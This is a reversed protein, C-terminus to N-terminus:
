HAISHGHTQVYAQVVLEHLLQIPAHTSTPPAGEDTLCDATREFVLAPPVVNLRAQTRERSSLVFPVAIRGAPHGRLTRAVRGADTSLQRQQEVRSDQNVRQPTPGSGLAQAVKAAGLVHRPYASHVDLLDHAAYVLLLLLEDLAEKAPELQRGEPADLALTRPAPASVICALSHRELLGIAQDCRCGYTDIRLQRSAVGLVEGHRLEVDHM